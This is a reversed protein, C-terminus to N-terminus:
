RGGAMQRSAKETGGTKKSDKKRAGQWPQGAPMTCVFSGSRERRLLAGM